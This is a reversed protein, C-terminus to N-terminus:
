PASQTITIVPQSDDIPFDVSNGWVLAVLLFCVILAVAVTGVVQARRRGTASSPGVGAPIPAHHDTWGGGDWYRLM